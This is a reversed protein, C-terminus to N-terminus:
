IDKWAKKFLSNRTFIWYKCLYCCCCYCCYCCCCCCCICCCCCWCWCWCCCFSYRGNKAWRINIKTLISCSTNNKIIHPNLAIAGITISTIKWLYHFIMIEWFNIFNRCQLHNKHFLNPTHREVRHFYRCM